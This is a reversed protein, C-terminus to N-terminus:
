WDENLFSIPYCYLTREGVSRSLRRRREEEARVGRRVRQVVEEQGEQWWMRGRRVERMEEPAPSDWPPTEKASTSNSEGVSPSTAPRYIIVLM